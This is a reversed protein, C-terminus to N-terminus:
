VSSIISISDPTKKGKPKDKKFGKKGKSQKSVEATRPSVSPSDISQITSAIM